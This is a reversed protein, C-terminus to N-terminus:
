VGPRCRRRCSASATRWPPSRCPHSPLVTYTLLLVLGILATLVPPSCLGALVCPGAPMLWGIRGAQVPMYRLLLGSCRGIGVQPSIITLLRYAEPLSQPVPNPQLDAYNISAGRRLNDLFQVEVLRSFDQLLIPPPHLAACLACCAVHMNPSHATDM